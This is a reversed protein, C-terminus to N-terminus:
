DEGLLKKLASDLRKMSSFTQYQRYFKIGPICDLSRSELLTRREKELPIANEFVFSLLKERETHCFDCCTGCLPCNERVKREELPQGCSPCTYVIQQKGRLIDNNPYRIAAERVEEIVKGNRTVKQFIKWVKRMKKWRM